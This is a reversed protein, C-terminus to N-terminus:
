RSGMNIVGSTSNCSRMYNYIEIHMCQTIHLVTELKHSTLTRFLICTNDELLQGRRKSLVSSLCQVETTDM